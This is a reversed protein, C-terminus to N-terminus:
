LKGAMLKDITKSFAAPTYGAGPEYKRGNIYVTPTGRLGAKNGMAMAKSIIADYKAKNAEVDKMDYGFEKAVEAIKEPSLQRQVAFLKDHVKFFADSGGKEFAHQALWSAPRAQKHFSLPYHAFVVKVKDKYRKAVEAVPAAVRSCYPCQFDSFEIITVKANKPGKFPLGSVDFQNVKSDLESFVKGKAIIEEYYAQGKKEGAKKLEEDIIAKFMALPQAGVIKRGNIVFNPTGRVAVTGAMEMDKVVQAATAKDKRDKDFKALDLGLEKAWATFNADNLARANAFAKDHFEWFKGQKGAAISAYHAPKANRHFPLPHHKFVVRVKDGYAKKVEDVTNKGRSCFPCEFDSFEVITVQAKDSDGLIVDNKVDVPVKWITYSDKPPKVPGKPAQPRQQPAAAIKEGKFFYGIIKPGNSADRAKFAEVMLAEGTKGADRAKKASELASDVEKKFAEFPQAGSLLKGNIFFGPTGRAGLANAAKQERDIQASLKPDKLAAEFKAVDLKLEGAWKKFNEDTLARQNAFLKDHMEWFKGQQHAALAALAAPKARNHFSLPNNAWVVRVQDKYTAKIKKLTPGVRSCFPCQFDSIEIITVLADKGGTVPMTAPIVSKAAAPVAKPATKAAKDKKPAEKKAKDGCGSFALSLVAAAALSKSIKNM